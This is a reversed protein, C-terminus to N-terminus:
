PATPPAGSSSGAQSGAGSGAASGATAGKGNDHAPVLRIQRLAAEGAKRFAAAAAPGKRPDIGSKVGADLHEQYLQM